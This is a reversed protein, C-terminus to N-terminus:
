GQSSYIGNNEQYLTELNSKEANALHTGETWLLFHERLSWHMNKLLVM